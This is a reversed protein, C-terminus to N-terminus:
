KNSGAAAADGDIEDLAAVCRECLTPYDSSEGVHVSYNWCRDCKAGRAKEARVKLDGLGAASGSGNTPRMEIEVQSVIFLAPLFAAYKKLLEALDGSASLTVRAELNASITKAVRLPELTKLVEERVAHLRDWNKARMEDLAHELKAADPFLAMHVSEPEGSVHPLYKWAEEATFVLIPAILRVLANAIRYVAMQASRRGRNHPAFTYLRDKLLDFYFSSL